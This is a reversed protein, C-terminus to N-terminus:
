ISARTCPPGRAGGSRVCPESPTDSRRKTMTSTSFGPTSSPDQPSPTSSSTMSSDDSNSCSRTATIPHTSTARRSVTITDLPVLHGFGVALADIGDTPGLNREANTHVTPAEPVGGRTRAPCLLDVELAVDRYRGSWKWKRVRGDVTTPSLGLKDFGEVISDYYDATEGDLLHLSLHFDLDGTGTHPSIGIPPEPVRLSPVIGGVIALHRGGFASGFSRLVDAAIGLLLPTDISEYDGVTRDDAAM